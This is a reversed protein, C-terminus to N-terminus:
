PMFCSPMYEQNEELFIEALPKANEYTDRIFKIDHELFHRLRGFRNNKIFEIFDESDRCFEIRPNSFERNQEDLYDTIMDQYDLQGSIDFIINHPNNRVLHKGNKISIEITDMLIDSVFAHVPHMNGDPMDVALVGIPNKSLDSLACAMSYCYGHTYLNIDEKSIPM